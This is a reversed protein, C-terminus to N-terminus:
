RQHRRHNAEEHGLVQRLFSMWRKQDAVQQADIRDSIPARETSELAELARDIGIIANALQEGTERDIHGTELRRFRDRRERRLRRKARDAQEVLGPPMTQHKTAELVFSRLEVPDGQVTIQEPIRVGITASERDIRELLQKREYPKVDGEDTDIHLFTGVM